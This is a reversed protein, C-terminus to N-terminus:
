TRGQGGATQEHMCSRMFAHICDRDAPSLSSRLMHVRSEGEGGHREGSALLNRSMGRAPLLRVPASRACRPGGSRACCTSRRHRAGRDVFSFLLHPLQNLDALVIATGGGEEFGEKGM